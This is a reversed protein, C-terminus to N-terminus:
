GLRLDMRLYAGKGQLGSYTAIRYPSGEGPTIRPAASARLKPQIARAMGDLPRLSRAPHANSVPNGAATMLRLFATRFRLGPSRKIAHQSRMSPRPVRGAGYHGMVPVMFLPISDETARGALERLDCSGPHVGAVLRALLWNDFDDRRYLRRERFCRLKWGPTHADVFEFNRSRSWRQEDQLIRCGIGDFTAVSTRRPREAVSTSGRM